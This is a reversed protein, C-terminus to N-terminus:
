LIYKSVAQHIFKVVRRDAHVATGSEIKLSLRSPHPSVYYVLHLLVGVLSYWM